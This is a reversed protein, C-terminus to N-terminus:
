YPSQRDKIMFLLGIVFFIGLVIAIKQWSERDNWWEGISGFSFGTFFSSTSPSKYCQQNLPCTGAINTDGQDSASKCKGGNDSCTYTPVSKGHLNLTIQNKTEGFKFPAVSDCGYKCCRNLSIVNISYTGKPLDTSTLITTESKGADLSFTKQIDEKADCNFSPGFGKRAQAEQPTTVELSVIGSIPDSLTNQITITASVWDDGNNYVVTGSPPAGTIGTSSQNTSLGFCVQRAPGTPNGLSPENACDYCKLECTNSSYTTRAADINIMQDNDSLFTGCKLGLDNYSKLYSADAVSGCPGIGGQSQRGYTQRGSQGPSLSALAIVILVIWLYTNAQKNTIKM